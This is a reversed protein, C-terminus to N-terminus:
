GQNSARIRRSRSPSPSPSTRASGVMCTTLRGRGLGGLAGLEPAGPLLPAKCMANSPDCAGVAGEGTPSDIPQCDPTSSMLCVGNAHYSYPLYTWAACKPHGPGSEGQTCITCCAEANVAPVQWGGAGAGGRKACGVGPQQPWSSACKAQPPGPPAPPAPPPMPAASVWSTCAAGTSTRPRSSKLWCNSSAAKHESRFVWGVCKEGAATCSACCAAASAVTAEGFTDGGPLCTGHLWRSTNSCTRPLQQQQVHTEEAQACRVTAVAAALVVLLALRLVM